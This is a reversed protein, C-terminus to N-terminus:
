QLNFKIPLVMRVSAPKGNNSGGKWSPLMSIVRKAERDYDPHVGRIIEVDTVSGDGRVVFRVYVTGDIGLERPARPYRIKWQIFKMLAEVGGEYQPMIEAIDVVERAIVVEPEPLSFVSTGEPTGAIGSDFGETSVFETVSTVEEEDLVEDRRVVVSQSKANRKPRQIVQEPARRKEISPPPAITIWEGRLPPPGEVKGREDSQIHQLSLVVTILVVTVGLGSLLRSSYARRLVYAGYSKNRNEFVVDEWRRIVISNADM